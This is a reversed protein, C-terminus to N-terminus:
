YKKRLLIILWVLNEMANKKFKTFNRYKIVM